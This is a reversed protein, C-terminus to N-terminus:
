KARWKATKAIQVISFLLSALVHPDAYSGQHEYGKGEKGHEFLMGKIHCASRKSPVTQDGPEAAPQLRLVVTRQGAKVKLIGKGDDSLLEWTHPLPWPIFDGNGDLYNGGTSEACFVIEGYSAQNPSACYSAYTVPHFTTEISKLFNSALRLRNNVKRLGGGKAEPVNGPNVWDPNILRWWAKPPQLYISDLATETGRPWSWLIKGWSDTVKLWERGYAAGPMMELPAPANALIATANPGDVGLVQASLGDVYGGLTINDNERFGFRMRKYAGAAGMTPMVNHYIGLVTVDKDNLMNGYQRHILARALLGGMSHTVIIVEDCKLGRKQYGKVLGRIRDAIAVASEGNSKIFNYGMAHVPYWCPAVQKLDSASLPAGSSAGFNRPDQMLLETLEGGGSGAGPLADKSRAKWLPGIEGKKAINNLYKEATKLMTGYPGTFFVESWGRWRAVQAVTAFKRQKNLADAGPDAAFSFMHGMLPPIPALGDPVNKHRADSALTEAGQPDFRGKSETYHYYEVETENPDFDLQRQAPSANKFWGGFGEGRVVDVKGIDDPRWARNDDRKLGEQRSKSMRLNSGMVGPLFIVPIVKDPPAVVDHRVTDTTETMNVTYEAWGGVGLTFEGEHNGHENLNKADSM